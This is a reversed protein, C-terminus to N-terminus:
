RLRGSLSLKKFIELCKEEYEHDITVERIRALTMPVNYKKLIKAGQYHLELEDIADHQEKLSDNMSGRNREPLCNLIALINETEEVSNCAYICNYALKMLEALNPVIPDRSGPKSNEMVQLVKKLNKEGVQSLYQDLLYFRAGPEKDNCKQLFPVLFKKFHHIWEDDKASSMILDLRESYALEELKELTIDTGVDYVLTEVTELDDQIM